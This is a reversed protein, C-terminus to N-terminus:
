GRMMGAEFAGYKEHKNSTLIPVRITELVKLIELFPVPASPVLRALNFRSMQACIVALNKRKNQAELEFGANGSSLAAVQAWTDTIVDSCISKPTDDEDFQDAFFKTPTASLFSSLQVNYAIRSPQNQSELTTFLNLTNFLPPHDICELIETGMLM